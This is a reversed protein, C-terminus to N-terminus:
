IQVVKYIDIRVKSAYPFFGSKFHYRIVTVHERLKTLRCLLLIRTIPLRSPFAFTFTLIKKTKLVSQVCTLWHVQFKLASQIFYVADTSKSCSASHLFVAKFANKTKVLM